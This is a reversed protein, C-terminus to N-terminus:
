FGVGLIIGVSSRHWPVAAAERRFRPQSREEDRRILRDDDRRVIRRVRVAPRDLRAPDQMTVTPGDGPRTQEPQATTLSSRKRSTAAIERSDTPLAEAAAVEPAAQPETAQAPALGMFSLALLAPAIWPASTKRTM